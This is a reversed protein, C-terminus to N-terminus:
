KMTVADLLMPAPALLVDLSTEAAVVKLAGEPTM